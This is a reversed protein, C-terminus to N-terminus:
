LFDISIDEFGSITNEKIDYSMILHVLLDCNWDPETLFEDFDDGPEYLPNVTEISFTVNIELDIPIYLFDDSEFVEDEIISCENIKIHTLDTGWGEFYDGSFTHNLLFDEIQEILIEEVNYYDKFYQYINNIIENNLLGYLPRIIELKELLKDFNNLYIIRGNENPFDDHLVIEDDKNIGFDQHNESVFFIQTDMNTKAYEYITEWILADKFERKNNKFPQLKRYYRDFVRKTAKNSPYIIQFTSTLKNYFNDVIEEKSITCNIETEIETIRSLDNNLSSIKQFVEDIRSEFHERLENLNMETICLTCNNELSESFEILDNFKNSDMRLNKLLINTDLFIAIKEYKEVTM